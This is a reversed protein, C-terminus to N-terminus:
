GTKQSTCFALLEPICRPTAGLHFFGQLAMVRNKEIYAQLQHDGNSGKASFVGPAEEVFQWASAAAAGVKLGKEGLFSPVPLTFTDVSFREPGACVSTPIIGVGSFADDMSPISFKESLYATSGSEVILKGGEDYFSRLSRYMQVNQTLEHAYATVYGGPLWVVSAEKPIRIDTLPSFPIFEVGCYQLLRVNDQYLYSFCIDDALAIKVKNRHLVRRPDKIQLGPAQRALSLVQDLVSDKLFSESLIDFTSRPILPASAHQVDSIPHPVKGSHAPITHLLTTRSLREKLSATWASVAESEECQTLFLGKVSCKEIHNTLHLLVQEQTEGPHACRHVLFLPSRSLAAIDVPRSNADGTGGTDLMNESTVILLCDVGLGAVYLSELIQEETLLNPDLCSIPNGSLRKLIASRAFATRHVCIAIKKGVKRLGHALGLAVDLADSPNESSTLCIRPVGLVKM